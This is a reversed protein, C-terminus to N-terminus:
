VNWAVDKDHHTFNHGCCIKLVEKIIALKPKNMVLLLTHGYNTMQVLRSANPYSRDNLGLWCAGTNGEAM